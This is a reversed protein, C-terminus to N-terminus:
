GQAVVEGQYQTGRQVHSGARGAQEEAGGYLEQTDVSPSPTGQAAAASVTSSEPITRSPLAPATAM